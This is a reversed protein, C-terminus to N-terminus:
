VRFNFKLMMAIMIDRATFKRLEGSGGFAHFIFSNIAWIYPMVKIVIDLIGFFNCTSFVVVCFRAIFIHHSFFKSEIVGTM